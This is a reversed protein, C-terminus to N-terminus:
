STELSQAQKDTDCKWPAAAKSDKAQLDGSCTTACWSNCIAAADQSAPMYFHAWPERVSMWPKKGCSVSTCTPMLLLWHARDSALREGLSESIHLVDVEVYAVLILQAKPWTLSIKRVGVSVSVSPVTM